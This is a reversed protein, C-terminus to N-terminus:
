LHVTRIFGAKQVEGRTLLTMPDSVLRILHVLPGYLAVLQETVFYTM